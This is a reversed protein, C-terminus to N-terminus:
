GLSKDSTMPPTTTQAADGKPIRLEVDTGNGSLALKVSKVPQASGLDVVLGVGRKLNGLKPNGCTSCRGGAPRPTATGPSSSRTPTRPGRAARRTSTGHRRPHRDPRRGAAGPDPAPPPTSTAPATGASMRKNLVLGSVIAGAVLLM